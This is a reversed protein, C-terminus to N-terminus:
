CMICVQEDKQAKAKDPFVYLDTSNGGFQILTQTYNTLCGLEFLTCNKIPCKRSDSNVFLEKTDVIYKNKFIKDYDVEYTFRCSRGKDCKYSDLERNLSLSSSCLSLSIVKFKRFIIQEGNACAFCFTENNGYVEQATKNLYVPYPWNQDMSLLTSKSKDNCKSNGFKCDIVPCNIPQSNNFFNQWTPIMKTHSFSM